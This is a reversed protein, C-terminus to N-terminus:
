NRLNRGQSPFKFWLQNFNINLHIQLMGAEAELPAFAAEIGGEVDVVLEALLSGERDVLM